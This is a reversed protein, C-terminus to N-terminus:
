AIEKETNWLYGVMGIVGILTIVAAKWFPNNPTVILEGIMFPHLSGCSVSCRFRFKGADNATFVIRESIGPTVRTKIDHGDLAFGHVVDSSTLTIVVQDGQHVEIRGPRYAFDAANISIEHTMPNANTPGPWWFIAAMVCLVLLAVIYRHPIRSIQM